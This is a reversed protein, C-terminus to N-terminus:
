KKKKKMRWHRKEVYVIQWWWRGLLYGGIIGAIGLLITVAPPLYTSFLLWPYQPPMINAALFRSFYWSELVSHLIAALELGLVITLILYVTRKPNM